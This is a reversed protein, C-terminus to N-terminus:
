DAPNGMIKGNIEPFPVYLIISDKITFRVQQKARFLTDIHILAGKNVFYNTKNGSKSYRYAKFAETVSTTRNIKQVPPEEYHVSDGNLYVIFPLDYPNYVLEDRSDVAGVLTSDDKRGLKILDDFVCLDFISDGTFEIFESLVADDEVVTSVKFVYSNLFKLHKTEDTLKLENLFYKDDALEIIFTDADSKNILYLYNGKFYSGSDEELTKPLLFRSIVDVSYKRTDLHARKHLYEKEGDDTLKVKDGITNGFRLIHLFNEGAKSKPSPKLFSCQLIGLFFILFIIVPTKM